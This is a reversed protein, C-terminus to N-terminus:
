NVSIHLHDYHNATPSGRDEMWEWAGGYSIRQKWIIYKLPLEGWHDLLWQALVDGNHPDIMCDIANGSGHDGSDGLRLGGFSTVEPFLACVTDYVQSANPSLGLTWAPARDCTAEVQVIIPKISITGENGNKMSGPDPLYGPMGADVWDEFEQKGGNAIVPPEPVETEAEHVVPELEALATGRVYRPALQIILVLGVTSALLLGALTRILGTYKTM